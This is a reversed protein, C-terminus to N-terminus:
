SNPLFLLESLAPKPEPKPPLPGVGGNPWGEVVVLERKPWPRGEVPLGINPETESASFLAPRNLWTGVLLGSNPWSSAVLLVVDLVMEVVAVAALEVAMNPSELTTLLAPVLGLVGTNPSLTGLTSGELQVEELDSNPDM